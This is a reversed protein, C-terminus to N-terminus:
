KQRSKRLSRSANVSLTNIIGTALALCSTRMDLPASWKLLTVSLLLLRLLFHLGGLLSDATAPLLRPHSLTRPKQKIGLSTSRVSCSRRKYPSRILNTSWTSTSLTSKAAVALSHLHEGGSLAAYGGGKKTNGRNCSGAVGSISSHWQTGSHVEVIQAV